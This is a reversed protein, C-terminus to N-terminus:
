NFRNLANEGIQNTRTANPEIEVLLINIPYTLIPQKTFRLKSSAFNIRRAIIREIADIRTLAVGCGASFIATFSIIGGWFFGRKFYSWCSHRQWFWLPQHLLTVQHIDSLRNNNQLVEILKTQKVQSEDRAIRNNEFHSSAQDRSRSREQNM